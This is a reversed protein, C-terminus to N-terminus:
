LLLRRVGRAGMVSHRSVSTLGTKGESIADPSTDSGNRLLEVSTTWGSVQAFGFPSLEGDGYSTRTFNTSNVGILFEGLNHMDMVGYFTACSETRSSTPTAAYGARHPLAEFLSSLTGDNSTSETNMGANTITGAANFTATGWAYEGPVVPMDQGRCIKEYELETMPRLRAWDLYTYIDGPSLYNLVLDQGDISSNPPNSGDLDAYFTIPGNGIFEDCRIPNRADPVTTNSMVYRNIVETGTIDTQVRNEQQQRTLCNLFDIYQRATIKYKM